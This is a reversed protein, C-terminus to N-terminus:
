NNFTYVFIFLIFISFTFFYRSFTELFPLKNQLPQDGYGRSQRENPFGANMGDNMLGMRDPMIGPGMRDIPFGPGTQDNPFGAEEGYSTGDLPFGASDSMFGSRDSPFGSRDLPFSTRDPYVPRGSAPTYGPAKYGSLRARLQPSEYPPTASAAPNSTSRIDPFKVKPDMHDGFGDQYGGEDGGPRRGGRGPGSYRGPGMYGGGRGLYGSPGSGAEMYLGTQRNLFMNPPPGHQSEMSPPMYPGRTGPMMYSPPPGGGYMPGVDLRLMPDMLGLDRGMPDAGRFYPRPWQGGQPLGPM